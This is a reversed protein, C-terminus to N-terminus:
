FVCVMRRLEPGSTMGGAEDSGALSCTLVGIELQTQEASGAAFALALTIQALCLLVLARALRTIKSATRDVNRAPAARLQTWGKRARLRCFKSCRKPSRLRQNEM